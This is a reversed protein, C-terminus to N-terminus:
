RDMSVASSSNSADDDEAGPAQRQESAAGSIARLLTLLARNLPVAVGHRDGVAVIAGSLAEVELPRGALRDFYMSTGVDPPFAKLTALRQDVEDDALQIGAARAAAVGEALIAHSLAQIDDRQFVHQRQLTLASVPNAVANLLLKRWALKEFEPTALARLQAGELLECFAHGHQDDPVILDHDSVRRIRVSGVDTREGSFNVLAPVIPFGPALPEVRRQHEIGNQLVAIRTEPGCLRNFWPASSPTDQVKTCLLVWDVPAAEEPNTLCHIPVTTSGDPQELTLHSIPKRVCAVVEHRAASALYGVVGSGIGGLGIVAIKKGAM